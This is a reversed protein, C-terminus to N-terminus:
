GPASPPLPVLSRGIDLLDGVSLDRSSLEVHTGLRELRVRITTDDTGGDEEVKFGAVDRWQSAGSVPMPEASERLSISTSIGDRSFTHYTISAHEPMQHRPLAPWIMVDVEADNPAREPVLVTFGVAVPLEELLLPRAVPSTRFGEGTPPVLTFTDPPLREDFAADDIALVLFPRGRFRAETRLLVGREADVLLKYEDAGTGIGHLVGSDEDDDDTSAPRALVELALRGLRTTRGRIELDVAPLLLSPRVLAIGPGVGSESNERGGNTQAGASPSWSWWTRGDVVVTVRDGHGVAFEARVREPKAMWLRWGSETQESEDVERSSDGVVAVSRSRRRGVRRMFAELHLATHRWETGEARLSRWREESTHMLELLDGLESV